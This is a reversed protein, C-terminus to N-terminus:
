SKDPGNFLPIKKATEVVGIKMHSQGIFVIWRDTGAKENDCRCVKIVMSLTLSFM